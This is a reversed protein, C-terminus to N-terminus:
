FGILAHIRAVVEAQREESLEFALGTIRYDPNADPQQWRVCLDLELGGLSNPVREPDVDIRGALISGIPWPQRGVLLLGSHSLDVMRGLLLGTVRDVVPLYYFLHVRKQKRQEFANLQTTM